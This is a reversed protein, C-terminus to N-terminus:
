CWGQALDVPVAGVPVIGSADETYLLLIGRLDPAVVVVVFIIHPPTHRHTHPIFLSHIIDRLGTVLVLRIFGSVLPVVVVSIEFDNQSRNQFANQFLDTSFKLIKM